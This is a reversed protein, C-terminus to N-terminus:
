RGTQFWTGLVDGFSSHHAQLRFGPLVKDLHEDGSPGVVEKNWRDRLEKANPVKLNKAARATTSSNPILAAFTEVTSVILEVAASVRTALVSDKIHSATLLAPLNTTLAAASANIKALLTPTPTSKYQNYAAQLLQLDKSAEASLNQIAAADSPDVQQGSQLAGVISDINLAMETLVPLDNLAVNIWSASCGTTVLVCCLTVALLASFSFKM